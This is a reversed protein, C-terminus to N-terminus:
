GAIMGRVRAPVYNFVDAAGREAATPLGLYREWLAEMDIQLRVHVEEKNEQGCNLSFFIASKNKNVLQGSGKNYEELISAVRDVGNKSAQTFVLCDDAFLLHSIWPAKRSVRVGGQSM